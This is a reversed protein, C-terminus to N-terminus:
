PDIYLGPYFVRRNASIGSPLQVLWDTDPTAAMPLMLETMAYMYCVTYRAPVQHHELRRGGGHGLVGVLEAPVHVGPLRCWPAKPTLAIKETNRWHRRTM